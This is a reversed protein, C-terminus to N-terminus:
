LIYLKSKNKRRVALTARSILLFVAAFSCDGDEGSLITEFLSSKNERVRRESAVSFLIFFFRHLSHFLIM